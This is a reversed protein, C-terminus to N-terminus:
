KSEKSSVSWTVCTSCRCNLPIEKIFFCDRGHVSSNKGKILREREERTILKCAGGEM